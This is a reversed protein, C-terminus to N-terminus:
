REILLTCAALSEKGVRIIRGNMQSTVEVTTCLDKLNFIAIRPLLHLPDIACYDSVKFISRYGCQDYIIKKQAYSGYFKCDKSSITCDFASIILNMNAYFRDYDSLFLPPAIFPQIRVAFEGAGNVMVLDVTASIRMSTTQIMIRFRSWQDLAKLILDTECADLREKGLLDVSEYQTHDVGRLSFAKYVNMSGVFLSDENESSTSFFRRSLYYCFHSAFGGHSSAHHFPSMFVAHETGKEASTEVITSVHFFERNLSGSNFCSEMESELRLVPSKNIM